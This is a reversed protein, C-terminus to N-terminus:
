AHINNTKCAPILFTSWHTLAGLFINFLHHKQLVYYQEDGPHQM